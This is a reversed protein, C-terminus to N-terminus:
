CVVCTPLSNFAGHEGTMDLKIQNALAPVIDSFATQQLNQTAGLLNLYRILIAHSMTYPAKIQVPNTTIDKPNIHLVCPCPKMHFIYPGKQFVCPCICLACPHIYFVFQCMHFACTHLSILIFNIYAYLVMRIRACVSDCM